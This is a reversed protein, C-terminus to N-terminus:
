TRGLVREYMGIVQPRIVSHDLRALATRMNMEAARDVLGDDLVVRRIADAVNCPNEPDVFCATKGDEAWEDVCATFSQIPFAGMIIAEMFGHSIGDSISLGIALRARGYLRLM